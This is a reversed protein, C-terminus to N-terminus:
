DMAYYSACNDWLIKQKIDHALPLKLFHNVAEPYKSDGHPYDTSFVLNSTGIQEIIKTATIEDPEISVVCHRQFYESPKMKVDPAWVDGELEWTEDLRWLLWPLWSCNAELFAVRLNPHRAFVGGACFCGLAAMQEFPQAYVRRLMLNPEFRQGFQNKGTGTSEHLGVSLNLDELASWLPDYYNDQWQHNVLPNARLFIARFGLQEGCRRAENVADNMDYTSIMATGVLRHPDRRCFDYLWDNYARAMAAAFPADMDEVVLARLGRTPYLVAVDIGEIDMAELQVQATWGREADKQYIGQNKEFNRGSAIDSERASQRAWDKGDPYVMRLDRVNHSTVGRPARAQYKKDIYREWLDPPEMIHMDSDLIRYGKKAM